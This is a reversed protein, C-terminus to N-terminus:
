VGSLAGLQQLMTVMDYYHRMVQVKGNAVEIVQCARLEIKRGSPQLIQGTPTQLSGTQTGRWTVELIVTNGSTSANDFTAKSDPIATAWGRWAALVDNIGQIKRQTGVEDYIFGPAVAAKVADWNKDNYAIIPAKAIDVLSQEAM